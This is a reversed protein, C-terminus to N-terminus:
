DQNATTDKDCKILKMDSKMRFWLKGDADEVNCRSSSLMEKIVGDFAPLTRFSKVRVKDGIKPWWTNNPM